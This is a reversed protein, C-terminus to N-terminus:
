GVPAPAGGTWRPTHIYSGRPEGDGHLAGTRMVRHGTARSHIALDASLRDLQDPHLLVKARVVLADARLDFGQIKRGADFGTAAAM